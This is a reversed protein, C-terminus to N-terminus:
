DMRNRLKGMEEAVEKHDKKHIEELKKRITELERTVASFKQHSWTKLASMVGKLKGAIDGL